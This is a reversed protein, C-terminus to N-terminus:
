FYFRRQQKNSFDFYASYSVFAVIIKMDAFSISFGRLYLRNFCVPAVLFDGSAVNKPSICLNMQM